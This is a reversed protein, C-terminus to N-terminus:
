PSETFRSRTAGGPWTRGGGETSQFPASSKRPRYIQDRTSYRRVQHVGPLVPVTGAVWADVAGNLLNERVLIESRGVKVFPPSKYSWYAIVALLAAIVLKAAFERAIDLRDSM